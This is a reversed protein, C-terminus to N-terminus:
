EKTPDDPDTTALTLAARCHEVLEAPMSHSHVPSCKFQETIARCAEVLRDHSNCARVIFAANANGNDGDIPPCYAVDTGDGFVICMTGHGLMEWIETRIANDRVTEWPGPTCEVRKPTSSQDTLSDTSM